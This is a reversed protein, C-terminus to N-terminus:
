GRNIDFIKPEDSVLEVEEEKLHKLAKIVDDASTVVAYEEVYVKVAGEMPIDIVLRTIYGGELNFSKVVDELFKRGSVLM